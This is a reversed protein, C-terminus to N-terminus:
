LTIIQSEGENKSIRIISDVFSEMKAEHSVIIIQKLGLTDLVDRVRDLQESSFGDTPEDLILLDKTNISSVVDNIVKNLALRYALAICTKEGGSLNQIDTDYGDITITPSFTDDITAFISESDILDSFWHEFHEKFDKLISSFLHSEILESLSPIYKSFYDELSILKISKEKNSIKHSIEQQLEEITKQLMEKQSRTLLEENKAHEYKAKISEFIEKQSSLEKEISKLTELEKSFASLNEELSKKSEILFAISSELQALNSIKSQFQEKKLKLLQIKELTSKLSSITDKEKQENIIVSSSLSANETKLENSKKLLEKIQSEKEQLQSSLLNLQNKLSEILYNTEIQIKLEESTKTIQLQLSDLELQAKELSKKLDYQKKTEDTKIQNKHSINVQQKCTPCEKLSELNQIFSSSTLISEKLSSIQSVLLDRKLNLKNIQNQLQEQDKLETKSKNYLANIKTIKDTLSEKSKISVSIEKELSGISEINKQIINKKSLYDNLLAEKQSITHKIEEENQSTNQEKEIASKLLETEKLQEKKSLILENLKKQSSDLSLKSQNYLALNKQIQEKTHKLKDEKEDVDKKQKSLSELLISSNSLQKKLNEKQTEHEKLKKQKEELDQFSGELIKRKERLEKSFKQSNEKILSYKELQFIGRLITRREDPNMYIIQRMEEQPTYVSYRFILSKHKTLFDKPYGLIELIKSKLEIPSLDYKIGQSIIYGNEQSTTKSKRKISRKIIYDKENCEFYLEVSGQTSGNRLLGSGSIMGKMIGFLAFEVCYLITSKGAGIDGSLLLKGKPFEINCRTYSRINKLVLRKIIM